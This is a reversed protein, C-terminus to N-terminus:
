KKFGELKFRDKFEDIMHNIFKFRNTVHSPNNSKRSNIGSIIRIEKLLSIAENHTRKALDEKLEKIASHTM